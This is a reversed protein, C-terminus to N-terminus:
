PENAEQMRKPIFQPIGNWPHIAVPWGFTDELVERTLVARPPGAARATGDSLVVLRDAFRAALNVNHTVLVGALGRDAVLEAVLEFVTMEHRIDLNATAEDLVLIAPEQALARALRVRQWEGGSLTAVRRDAFHTMDCRDLAAAVVERDHAGPARFPGLHPYRGLEVAARVRLPFTSEERQAVVAVTRALGRRDWSGVPRGAVTVTGADPAIAGVLLRLLTTKGSGNPGVIAVLEGSAVQLSVGAVADRDAGPYRYRVERLALAASGTTV